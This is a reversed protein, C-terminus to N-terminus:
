PSTAEDIGGDSAVAVTTLEVAEFRTVVGILQRQDENAGRADRLEPCVDLHQRTVPALGHQQTIAVYSTRVEM